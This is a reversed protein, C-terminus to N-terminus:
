MMQRRSAGRHSTSFQMYPMPDSASQELGKAIIDIANTPPDAISLGHAAALVDANGSTRYAEEMRSYFPSPTIFTADISELSCVKFAINALIL